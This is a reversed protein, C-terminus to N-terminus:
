EYKNRSLQNRIYEYFLEEIIEELYKGEENFVTIVNVKKNKM